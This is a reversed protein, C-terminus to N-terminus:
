ANKIEVNWFSHDKNENTYIFCIEKVKSNISIKKNFENLTFYNNQLKFYKKDDYSKPNLLLCLPKLMSQPYITCDSMPCSIVVKIRLLISLEEELCKLSRFFLSRHKPLEIKELVLLPVLANKLALTRSHLLFWAVIAWVAFIAFIFHFIFNAIM